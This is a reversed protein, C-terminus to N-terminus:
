LDEFKNYSGHGSATDSIHRQSIYIGFQINKLFKLQHYAVYNDLSQLIKKSKKQLEVDWSV